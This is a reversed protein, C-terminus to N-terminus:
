RFISNGSAVQSARLLSEALSLIVQPSVVVRRQPVSLMASGVGDEAEIAVNPNLSEAFVRIGANGRMFMGDRAIAFSGVLGELRVELHTPSADALPVIVHAHLAHGSALTGRVSCDGSTFTGKLERAFLRMAEVDVSVERMPPIAQMAEPLLALLDEISRLFASLTSDDGRADICEFVLCADSAKTLFLGHQEARALIPTLFTHVQEPEHGVFALDHSLVCSTDLRDLFARARTTLGLMVSPMTLAVVLYPRDRQDWHVSAELTSFGHQVTRDISDEDTRWGLAHGVRAAADRLRARGVIPAFKPSADEERAASVITIPATLQVFDRFATPAAHAVYVEWKLSTWEREFSPTLELPLQFSFPTGSADRDLILTVGFRRGARGVVRERVGVHAEKPADSGPWAIRGTIVEGSAFCQRDLSLEVGDVSRVVVPEQPIPGEFPPVGVRIQWSWHPDWAWPISVDVRLEYRIEAVPHNFTPPADRPLVFRIPLTLAGHLRTAEVMRQSAEAFCPANQDARAHGYLKWQVWDITVPTAAVLVLTAEVVEGPIVLEPIRLTAAIKSM